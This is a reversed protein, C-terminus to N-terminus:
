PQDPPVLTACVAEKEAQRRYPPECGVTPSRLWREPALPSRLLESPVVLYWHFDSLIGSALWHDDVTRRPPTDPYWPIVSSTCLLAARYSSFTRHAIVGNLIAIVIHGAIFLYFYCFYYYYKKKYKLPYMNGVTAHREAKISVCSAYVGFM